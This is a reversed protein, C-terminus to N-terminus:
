YWDGTSVGEPIKKDVHCEIPRNEYVECNKTIPDYFTCAGNSLVWNEKKWKALPPGTIQACCAGCSTCPFGSSKNDLVRM